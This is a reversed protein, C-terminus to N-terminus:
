KSILIKFVLLAGTKIKKSFKIVLVPVLCGVIAYALWWLGNIDNIVPYQALCEIPLRYVVIIILSIIKFSLFQLCMIHLSYRGFLLLLKSNIMIKCQALLLTMIIGFFCVLTYFLYQLLSLGKIDNNGVIANFGYKYLPISANTIVSIVRPRMLVVIMILVFFLLLSFWAKYKKIKDNWSYLQYLYGLYFFLLGNLGWYIMQSLSRPVFPVENLYFLRNILITLAITISLVLIKRKKFWKIAIYDIFIFVISIIILCELFWMAGAFRQRYGLISKLFGICFDRLSIYAYDKSDLEGSILHLKSFLNHFLFFILNYIVFPKYYSKFKKIMGNLPHISYKENYLMGNIFFFLPMHFLTVFRIIDAYQCETVVEQNTCAHGVCVLIIGIGKAIDLYEIREGKLTNM